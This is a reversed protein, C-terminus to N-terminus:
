EAGQMDDTPVFVLIVYTLYTLTKACNIICLLPVKQCYSFNTEQSNIEIPEGCYECQCALHLM